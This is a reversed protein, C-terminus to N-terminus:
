KENYIDKLMNYSEKGLNEKFLEVCYSTNITIIDMIMKKSDGSYFENYIEFLVQQNVNRDIDSVDAFLLRIARLLIKRLKLITNTNHM